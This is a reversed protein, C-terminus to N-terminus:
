FLGIQTMLAQYGVKPSLDSHLIGFHAEQGIDETDVDILQYYNGFIIQHDNLTNLRDLLIKLASLSELIWQRQQNEDAIIGAWSSYGTEMVAGRKGFWSDSPENIRRALIEVPAWDSFSCCAWTGPYHDVGIVDIVESAGELWRTVSEEWGLVNAMANVSLMADPDLERVIQGIRLILEADDVEAVLDILHNPENWLQYHDVHDRVLLTTLRVYSELASWFAEHNGSNYLIRAWEPPNSFIILPKLGLSRALQCYDRYFTLRASDSQAQQPEVDYWMVDTRVGIGGLAIVEEFALRARDLRYEVESAHISFFWSFGMLGWHNEANVLGQDLPVDGTMDFGTDLETAGQDLEDLSEDLSGDLSQDAIDIVAQDHSEMSLDDLEQPLRSDFNMSDVASMDAALADREESVNQGDELQVQMDRRESPVTVGVGGAHDECASYHFTSLLTILALLAKRKCADIM